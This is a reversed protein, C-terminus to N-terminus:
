NKFVYHPLTDSIYLCTTTELDSTAFVSGLWDSTPVALVVGGWLKENPLYMM